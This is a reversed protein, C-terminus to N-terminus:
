VMDECWSYTNAICSQTDHQNRRWVTGQNRDFDFISHQRLDRQAAVRITAWDSAVVPAAIGQRPQFGIVTMRHLPTCRLDECGHAERSRWEKLVRM